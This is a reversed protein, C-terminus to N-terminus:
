VKDVAVLKFIEILKKTANKLSYKDLMHMRAHLGMLRRLEKDEILKVMAAVWENETEALFGNNGDIVIEKNIGVPSAIVPIGCAMYELLKYGGKGREWADDPLPMIGIDLSQIFEVETNLDWPVINCIIGPIRHFKKTGSVKFLIDTTQAIRQLPDIILDLYKETSPSGKWGIIITNNSKEKPVYRDTDIPGTIIQVNPCYNLAFKKNYENEVICCKAASMMNFAGFFNSTGGVWIADDFDFIINPNILKLIKELRFPFVIKQIFIIDYQQALWFSKIISIIRMIGSLIYYKIKRAGTHNMTLKHMWEPSFCIVRWDIGEKELLPLYQYVRTRSSAALHSYASLFLIKM